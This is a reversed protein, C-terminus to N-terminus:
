YFCLRALSRNTMKLHILNTHEVLIRGVLIKLFVRSLRYTKNIDKEGGRGGFFDFIKTTMMICALASAVDFALAQNVYAVYGCLLM